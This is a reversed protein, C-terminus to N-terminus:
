DEKTSTFTAIVKGDATKYHVDVTIQYLIANDSKESYTLGQVEETSAIDSLSRQINTYVKFNNDSNNYSYLNTGNIKIKDSQIKAATQQEALYLRVDTKYDDESLFTYNINLSDSANENVTDYVPLLMYIAHGEPTNYTKTITKVVDVSKSGDLTYTMTLKIYYTYIGTSHDYDCEIDMKSSKVVKGPVLNAYDGAALENKSRFYSELDNDPGTYQKLIMAADSGFLSSFEPSTMSNVANKAADTGAVPSADTYEIPDLKIDVYFDETDAGTKPISTFKYTTFIRDYTDDVPSSETSTVYSEYDAMLEEISKAKFYETMDQAVTTANQLRRAESNVNMATMFSRIFPIAVIAIVTITVILEILSFGENNKKLSKM